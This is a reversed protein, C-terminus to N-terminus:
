VRCGGGRGLGGCPEGLILVAEGCVRQLAGGCGGVNTYGGCAGWGGPIRERGGVDGLMIVSEGFGKIHIPNRWVGWSGRTQITGVEWGTGLGRCNLCPVQPEGSTAVAKMLRDRGTGLVPM